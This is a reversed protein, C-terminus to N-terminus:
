IVEAIEKLLHLNTLSLEKGEIILADRKRLRTLTRSVTEITLGLFNGIDARSMPLSFTVGSLDRREQRASISLLLSAIRAEASNKSILTILTQDDTIERSMLQFFHRQLSPLDRSLEELKNFPIECVAATDLAVATSSHTGRAIGDVGVIEGPFYFGTVQEIGSKSLRSSKIHGSRVAYISEFPQDQRFLADGKHIPKGQSVINELKIIDDNAISIPLCLTKLRCNGCSIESNHPCHNDSTQTM